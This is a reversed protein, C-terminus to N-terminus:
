DAKKTSSPLTNGSCTAPSELMGRFTALDLADNHTARDFQVVSLTRVGFNNAGGMLRRAVFPRVNVPQPLMDATPPLASM